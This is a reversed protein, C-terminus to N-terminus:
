KSVNHLQTNVKAVGSRICHAVYRVACLFLKGRTQLSFSNMRSGGGIFKNAGPHLPISSWQTLQFCSGDCKLRHSVLVVASYLTRGMFPQLNAILISIFHRQPVPHLSHFCYFDNGSTSRIAILELLFRCLM